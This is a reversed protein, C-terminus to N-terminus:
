ASSPMRSRTRDRPSPSTYLLCVDIQGTVVQQIIVQKHEKLLGILKERTRIYRGIRRNAHNLFQTIATMDEPPPIPFSVDLFAEDTLQLRSVWIGKSRVRMEYNFPNSRVLWHMYKSYRSYPQRLRYVGYASSIIGHYRSVGLGRAWAWLSNIVLDGPWCLKYGVYSEAKFMTVNASSRLVVGHESSVTLLEEKGERSREDLCSFLFKGRLLQWTEPVDRLWEVGSPKYAPYPKLKAIM